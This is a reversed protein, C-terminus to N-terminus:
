RGGKEELIPPLWPSSSSARSHCLGDHVIRRALAAARLGPQILLLGKRSMRPDRPPHCAWIFTKLLRHLDSGVAEKLEATHRRWV